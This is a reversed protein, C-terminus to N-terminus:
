GRLMALVQQELWERAHPEVYAHSAGACTHLDGNCSAFHPVFAQGTRDNEAILVMHPLGCADLGQNMAQVLSNAPPPAEVAGRLGRLLKGLNVEGRLLRQLERPNRLKEAYRARIAAAPPLADAQDDEFTWPNSLVLADCMDGAMLMLASAADCNGFAVVRNVQPCQARFAASAALIDARSDRFGRNEGSSDGVGRRDFRFVPFGAAAITAALRAQGSFAGSRIENGGSVILLGSSGAAEDLTGALTDGECAFLMHRRTM